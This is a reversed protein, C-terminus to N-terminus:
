QHNSFLDSCKVLKPRALTELVVQFATRGSVGPTTGFACLAFTLSTCIVADSRMSLTMSCIYCLYCLVENEGQCTGKRRVGDAYGLRFM